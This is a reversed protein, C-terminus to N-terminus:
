SVQRAKQSKRNKSQSKRQKNEPEAKRSIREAEGAKLEASSKQNKQKADKKRARDQAKKRDRKRRFLEEVAQLSTVETPKVFKEEEDPWAKILQASDVVQAVTTLEEKRLAAAFGTETKYRGPSIKFAEAVLILKGRPFLKGARETEEELHAIEARLAEQEALEPDAAIVLNRALQIAKAPDECALKPNLQAAIRALVEPDLANPSNM